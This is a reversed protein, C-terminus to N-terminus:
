RVIADDEGSTPCDLDGTAILRGRGATVGTSEFGSTTNGRSLLLVPAM